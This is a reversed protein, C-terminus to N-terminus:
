KMIISAMSNRDVQHSHYKNYLIELQRKKLTDKLIDSKKLSKLMEFSKKDSYLKTIEIGLKASKRYDADKGSVNALFNTEQIEKNLPIIKKEYSILFDDFDKKSYKGEKKDANSCSVFFIIYAAFIIFIFYKKKM